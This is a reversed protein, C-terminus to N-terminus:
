FNRIRKKIFFQEVNETVKITFTLIKLSFDIKFLFGDYCYFEVYPEDLGIHFKYNAIIAAFAETFEDEKFKDLCDESIYYVFENENANYFSTMIDIFSQSHLFDKNKQTVFKTLLKNRTSIYDM